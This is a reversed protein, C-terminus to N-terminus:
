AAEKKNAKKKVIYEIEVGKRSNLKFSNNINDANPIDITDLFKYHITIEQTKNKGSGQAQYIEIKDILENLIAPTLTKMETFKRVAKVFQNRSYIADDDKDGAKELEAIKKKIDAQELEYKNTLKAYREDTLKGSVNDEYTKEFLMDLQNFRSNLAKLEEDRLRKEKEYDAQSKDILLRVFEDENEKLCKCLKRLELTVIQELSDVRIYHTSDCTGRMGRYNSCNFYEIKNNPHNCNFWMVNGCDACYLLGSFMNKQGNKQKRKKTNKRSKQVEQWVSREIIPPHHNEFIKMEDESHEIKKKNKFSKTHSKFNVLDGTYERMTLMKTITSKCWKYPNEQTKKGGKRIGKKIWYQTPTLIEKEQLIRATTEIGNGDICLKYILRVVDAAEDDIIWQKSDQPDRMYGYPPLSIPEGANGKLKKSSRVKRSIDKAYWENIINRFPTFDDDENESDVCDNIAIFHIDNDPFFTETYYGVQLYNRGLRSMDKVIVTTVYGMEIDEVLRKFEPRNFNTGTYGDDAYVRINTYHHEKAYKSLLKKQNAISNSDGELEDDRSLRVYLATIGKKGSQM